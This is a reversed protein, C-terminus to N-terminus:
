EPQNRPQEDAPSGAAAVGEATEPSEPLPDGPDPVDAPPETDAEATTEPPTPPRDPAPEGTVALADDRVVPATRRKGSRTRADHEGVFEILAQEGGDGLRRAAIRVVRTYGGPRNEFRDAIESFLIDVAEEDRLKSFARRRLAVYPARAATWERWGDGDRWTKWEASGKEATTAHREADAAALKAKKGLTVLKEVFPRLEKAKATTTVIRGVVRPASPDDPDPRVTRLLSCAMNKFMAKRHSANRGLKRGRMRHRM